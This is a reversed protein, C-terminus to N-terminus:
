TVEYVKLWELRILDGTKRCHKRLAELVRPYFYWTRQELPTIELRLELIDIWCQAPDEELAEIAAYYPLYLPIQGDPWEQKSSPDDYGVPMLPNFRVLNLIAYHHLLMEAAHRALKFNKIGMAFEVLTDLADQFAKTGFACRQLYGWLAREAKEPQYDSHYYYDYRKKLPYVELDHSPHPPSYSLDLARTWTLHWSKLQGQTLESFQEPNQLVEELKEIGAEVGERYFTIHLNEFLKEEKDFSGEDLNSESM